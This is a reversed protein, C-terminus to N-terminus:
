DLFAVKTGKEVMGALDRVDWNTLRVCGHSYTKGVKDPEPTGHIGYSEKTLDIWVAGVPNNPGPKITFKKDSKVGKFQYEPNYTYSPNPAVVRVEFEGSPAPKEESGISAPYVALLKGDKGYARLEHQKKDVEIKTVAGKEGKPRTNEVNAVIITEGVKDIAKGPNLAKLLDEDMHFKEALAERLSTYALRDLEAQEEMKGPIKDVFPGKADEDTIAYEKVVPENSTQTLKAWTEQDLNGSDKLGNARQFAAVAKQVNEGNRGDIVGPSFRARDLLVQAKIMAPDAGKGKGPNKVEAKNITDPSLGQAGAPGGALVCGAALLGAAVVRRWM